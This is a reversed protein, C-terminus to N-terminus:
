QGGGQVKGAAAAGAARDKALILVAAATIVAALGGGLGAPGLDIPLGLHINWVQAGLMALTSVFALIRGLDWFSNNPGMFLDRLFGKLRGMM